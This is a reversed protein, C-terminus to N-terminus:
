FVSIGPFKRQYKYSHARHLPVTDCFFITKTEYSSNNKHRFPVGVPKLNKNIRQRFPFPSKFHRRRLLFSTQYYATSKKGTSSMKIHAVAHEMYLLMRQAEGINGLTVTDSAVLAETQRVGLAVSALAWIRYADYAARLFYFGHM